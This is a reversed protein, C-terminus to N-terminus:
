YGGKLFNYLTYKKDGVTISKYRNTLPDYITESVIHNKRYSTPEYVVEVKDGLDLDTRTLGEAVDIKISVSPSKIKPHKSIYNLGYTKLRDRVETYGTGAGQGDPIVYGKSSKFKNSFDILKVRTFNSTSGTSLPSDTGYLTVSEVSGEYTNKTDVTAYPIIHTFENENSMDQGYSSLNSGYRIIDKIKTESTPLRKFILSFNDFDVWSDTQACVGTGADSLIQGVTNYEAGGFDVSIRDPLVNLTFINKFFVNIPVNNNLEFLESFVTGMSGTHIDPIGNSDGTLVNNMFIYKVHDASIEITDDKLSINKVVFIQATGSPKHPCVVCMDPFVFKALPDSKYITMQLTFEFDLNRKVEIKEIHTFMGYGFKLLKDGNVTSFYDNINTSFDFLRPYM